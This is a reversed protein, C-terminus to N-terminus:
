RENPGASSTCVIPCLTLSRTTTHLAGALDFVIRESLM